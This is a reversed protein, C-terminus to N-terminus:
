FWLKVLFGFIIYLRASKLIATLLGKKIIKNSHVPVVINRLEGEKTYIHHSGKVRELSWGQNELIKCLDKGTINKCRLPYFRMTVAINKVPPM